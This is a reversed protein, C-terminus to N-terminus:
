KLFPLPNVPQSGVIIEFHLHSGDKAGRRANGTNGMYGIIQGKYVYSSAPVAFNHLHGYRTSFNGHNIEILNGYEGINKAITVMGNAYAFVPDGTEGDIDIAQHSPRPSQSIRHSTTPWNGVMQGGLLPTIRVPVTGKAVFDDALLKAGAYSLDIIRGAVYPGRDTITVFISRGTRTDTVMVRTGFPLTKHAALTPDYANFIRGNAMRRGHFTDGVGYNSALGYESWGSPVAGFTEQTTYDWNSTALNGVAQAVSDQWAKERRARKARNAQRISDAMINLRRDEEMERAQRADKSEASVSASSNQNPQGLRGLRGNIRGLRQSAAEQSHALMGLFVVVWLFIYKRM